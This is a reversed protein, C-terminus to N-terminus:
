RPPQVIERLKKVAEDSADFTRAVIKQLEEGSLPAPELGMKMAEALFDPDNTMEGFAKRLTAARDPPIDPPALVTFGIESVSGLMGLVSRDLDNDAFEVIAPVNPLQPSRQSALTYLFNIKDNKIWDEKAYIDSLSASGNGEVEGREMALLLPTTSEYGLVVRFRTRAVRNLAWPLMAATGAAGSAGMIMDRQRADEM